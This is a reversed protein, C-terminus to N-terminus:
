GWRKTPPNFLGRVTSARCRSRGCRWTCIISYKGPDHDCGEARRRMSLPFLAFALVHQMLPIVRQFYILHQTARKEDVDNFVGGALSRSPHIFMGM